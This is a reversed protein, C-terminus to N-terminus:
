LVQNHVMRHNEHANEIFGEGGDCVLHGFGRALAHRIEIARSRGVQSPLSSFIDGGLDPDLDAVCERSYPLLHSGFPRLVGAHERLVHRASSEVLPDLDNLLIIEASRLQRLLQGVLDQGGIHEEELAAVLLKALHELLERVPLATQWLGRSCVSIGVGKKLLRPRVGTDYDAMTSLVSRMMIVETTWVTTIVRVRATKM